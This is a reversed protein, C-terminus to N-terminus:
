YSVAVVVVQKQKGNTNTDIEMIERESSSQWQRYPSERAFLMCNPRKLLGAQWGVNNLQHNSVM